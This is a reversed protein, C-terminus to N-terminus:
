PKKFTITEAQSPTLSESYFYEIGFQSFATNLRKQVNTILGEKTAEDRILNKILDKDTPSNHTDAERTRVLLHAGGDDLTVMASIGTDNWFSQLDGFSPILTKIHQIEPIRPHTHIKVAESLIFGKIGIDESQPAVHAKGNEISTGTSIKGTLFKNRSLPNRYVTLGREKGDARTAALMEQWKSVGINDTKITIEKGFGPIETIEKTLLTINKTPLEEPIKPEM